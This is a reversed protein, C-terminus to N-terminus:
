FINGSVAAHIGFVMGELAPPLEGKTVLIAKQLHALLQATPDAPVPVVHGEVADGQRRRLAAEGALKSPEPTPNLLTHALTPSQLSSLVHEPTLSSDAAIVPPEPSTMASLTPSTITSTTSLSGTNSNTINSSNNSYSSTNHESNVSVPTTTPAPSSGVVPAPTNAVISPTHNSLSQERSAHVLEM